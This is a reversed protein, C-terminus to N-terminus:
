YRHKTNTDLRNKAWDSLRIIKFIQIEIEHLCGIYRHISITRQRDLFLSFVLINSYLQIKVMVVGSLARFVSSVSM